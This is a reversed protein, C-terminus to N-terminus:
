AGKPSCRKMTSLAASHCTGQDDVTRLFNQRRRRNRFQQQRALQRRIHAADCNREVTPDNRACCPRRRRQALAILNLDDTGHLAPSSSVVVSFLSAMDFVRGFGDESLKRIASRLKWERRNM